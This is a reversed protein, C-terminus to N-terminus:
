REVLRLKSEEIWGTVNADTLVQRWTVGDVVLAEAGISVMREDRGLESVVESEPDPEVHVTVEDVAFADISTDPEFGITDQVSPPDPIADVREWTAADAGQSRTTLSEGSIEVRFGDGLVTVVAGDQDVFDAACSGDAGFDTLLVEETSTLIWSGRLDRCGTSGRMTGAEEFVIWAAGKADRLEGDFTVTSMQWVGGVFDGIPSGAIPEFRLVTGAGELLLQDDVLRLTPQNFLLETFENAALMVPEACGAAESAMNDIRLEGDVVRYTGGWNNCGDSGGLRRDSEFGITPEFGDVIDIGDVLVWSSDALEVTVEDNAACAASGIGCLLVFVLRRM